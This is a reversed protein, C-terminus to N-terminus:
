LPTCGGSMAGVVDEDIKDVHLVRIKRASFFLMQLVDQGFFQADSGLITMSEVTNFFRDIIFRVPTVFGWTEHENSLIDVTCASTSAKCEKYEGSASFEAKISGNHFFYFVDNSKRRVFGTNVTKMCAEENKRPALAESGFLTNITGDENM